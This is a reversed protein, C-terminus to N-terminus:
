RAINRCHRSANSIPAALRMSPCLGAPIQSITRSSRRLRQEIEEPTLYVRRKRAAVQPSVMGYLWRRYRILGAGYGRKMAREDAARAWRIQSSVKMLRVLNLMRWRPHSTYSSIHELEHAIIAEIAAPDTAALGSAKPNVLLTYHMRRPM